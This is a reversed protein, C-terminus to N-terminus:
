EHLTQLWPIIHKNEEGSECKPIDHVDKGHLYDREARRKQGKGKEYINLPYSHFLIQPQTCVGRTDPNRSMRVLGFKDKLM